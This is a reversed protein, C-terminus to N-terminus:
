FSIFFAWALLSAIVWGGGMDAKPVAKGEAFLLFNIVSGFRVSRGGGFDVRLPFVSSYGPVGRLISGNEL